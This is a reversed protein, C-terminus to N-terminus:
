LEVEQRDCCRSEDEVAVRERLGFTRWGDLLHNLTNEASDSNGGTVSLNYSISTMTVAEFAESEPVRHVVM